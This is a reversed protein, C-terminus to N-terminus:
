EYVASKQTYKGRFFIAEIIQAGFFPMQIKKLFEASSNTAQIIRIDPSQHPIYPVLTQRRDDRGTKVAFGDPRDVTDHGYRNQVAPLLAAILSGAPSHRGTIKKETVPILFDQHIQM